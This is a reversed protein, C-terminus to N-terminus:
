TCNVRTAICANPTSVKVPLQGGKVKKAEGGSLSRVTEKNLQLKGVAVRGKKAAKKTQKKVM